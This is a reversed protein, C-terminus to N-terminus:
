FLSDAACVPDCHISEAMELRIDLKIASIIVVVVVVVMMMIM